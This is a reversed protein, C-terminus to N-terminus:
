ATNRYVVEYNREEGPLRYEFYAVEFFGRDDAPRFSKLAQHVQALNVADFFCDQCTLLLTGKHRQAYVGEYSQKALKEELKAVLRVATEDLPGSFGFSRETSVNLFKAQEDRLYIDTVELWGDPEMIFDPPDDGLTVTYKHGTTQSLWATFREATRKESAPNPM